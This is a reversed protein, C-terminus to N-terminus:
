TTTLFLFRTKTRINWTEYGTTKMIGEQNLYSASLNYTSAENGGSANIAAKSVVANRYLERQWDTGRGGNWGVVDEATTYGTARAFDRLQNGDMVDIYKSVSQIGSYADVSVKTPTKLRGGKTTILIVGNAARSGYIAAASADKLVELSQIDTPDVMNIDGYVGDIVYLPSTSSLSSIGRININMGEGPQGSPSSVTVGAIRGQLASSASRAVNAQLDKGSVSSVAGTLHSKKVSGYGIVFLEDLARTDEQLTINITNRGATNVEQSLYGIYSIHLVADPEFNLVFNGDIDTVTGNTTGKEMINVGIIPEGYTDVITGTVSKQQQNVSSSAMIQNHIERPSLIIQSGKVEYDVHDTDFLRDLVSSIAADKVRMSVKRDVNILRSNYLFYYDSKQEITQLVKEVTSNRMELSIKADQSYSHGAQMQFFMAFLFILTIRMAIPIKKYLTCLTHVEKINSKKNM